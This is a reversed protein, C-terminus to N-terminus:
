KSLNKSREFLSSLSHIVRISFKWQEDVVKATFNNKNSLL